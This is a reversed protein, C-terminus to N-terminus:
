SAAQAHLGELREIHARHDATITAVADAAQPIGAVGHAAAEYAALLRKKDEIVEPILVHPKVFHMHGSLAQVRRPGPTAHLVDLLLGLQQLHRREDEAMESLAAADSLDAETVYLESEDLRQVLSRTELARLADITSAVELNSM